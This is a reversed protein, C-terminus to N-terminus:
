LGIAGILSGDDLHSKMMLIASVVPGPLIHIDFGFRKSIM